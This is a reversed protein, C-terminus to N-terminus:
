GRKWAHAILTDTMDLQALVNSYSTNLEDTQLFSWISHGGPKGAALWHLHNALPYRQYGTIVIDQFQAAGLFAALTARTHLILHESWFTHKKFPAFDLFKILFDNAHPVEVVVRGGDKLKRYIQKLFEVPKIIHEMVHFLSIVDYYNDATESIDGFVTLSSESAVERAAEQPEVGHATRAYKSLLTLVGGCGCGCDLYIKDRIIDKFHQCRRSDDIETKLAGSRSDGSHWFSLDQKNRYHGITMHDSRDLIIAGSRSCRVVGIDDRDRVRHFFKEFSTETSLGLDILLQQMDDNQM